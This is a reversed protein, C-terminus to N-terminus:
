TPGLAQCSISIVAEMCWKGPVRGAVLQVSQVGQRSICFICIKSNESFGRLRVRCRVLVTDDSTLAAVCVM